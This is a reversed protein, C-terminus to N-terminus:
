EGVFEKVISCLEGFKFPKQLHRDSGAPMNPNGSISLIPINPHMRKSAEIVPNRDLSSEKDLVTDSILLSYDADAREIYSIADEARGYGTVGYGERKLVRSCLNRITEEDDVLLINKPM